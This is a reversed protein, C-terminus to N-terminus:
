KEVTSQWIELSTDQANEVISSVDPYNTIENLWTRVNPLYFKYLGNLKLFPIKKEKVLRRLQSESIGLYGSLEKVSFVEKDRAFTDAGDITYKM